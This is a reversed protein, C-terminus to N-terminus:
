SPRVLRVEVEVERGYLKALRKLLPTVKRPPNRELRSLCSQSTNVMEAVQAQTLGQETRLRILQAALAMDKEVQDWEDRFRPNKLKSQLHRAVDGYQSRLRKRKM